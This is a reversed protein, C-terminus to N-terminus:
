KEYWSMGLFMRLPCEAVIPSMWHPHDRNWMLLSNPSPSFHSTNDLSDVQDIHFLGGWNDNWERHAFIMSTFCNKYEAEHIRGDHHRHMHTEQDGYQFWINSLKINKWSKEQLYEKVLTLPKEIDPGFFQVTEDWVDDGNCWFRFRKCYQRSINKDYVGNEETLSQEDGDRYKIGDEYKSLRYLYQTKISLKDFYDEPLFDTEHFIM